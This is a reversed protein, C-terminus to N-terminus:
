IRSRVLVRTTTDSVSVTEEATAIIEATGGQTAKLQVYGGDAAVLAAGKTISEGSLGWALIIMGDGNIVGIQDNQSQITAITAPRYKVPRILPMIAPINPMSATIKRTVLIIPNQGNYKGRLSEVLFPSYTDIHELGSQAM